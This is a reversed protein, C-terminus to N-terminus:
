DLNKLFSELKPAIMDPKLKLYFKLPAKKAESIERSSMEEYDSLHVACNKKSELKGTWNQTDIFPCFILFAPIDLAKAVNGAGGENGILADCQFTIAMFERLNKGFVDFFIHKQTQAKCRGFLEKAEEEQKPIYNFLLQAGTNAVIFDLIEVMYQPPYTKKSSSGLISIMFLPKKESIDAKKLQLKAATKEAETLYIKPKLESPFCSSIGQLLLMRNEIALGAGTEQVTKRTYTKTYAGSTYKKHYSIRKKAGSFLTILASGIKAYVDIVIDYNNKKVTKSLSFYKNINLGKEPQFLLYEDIYPNNEVVPFTHKYILYHLESDPQKKKIAEFLISSTLVDGIM